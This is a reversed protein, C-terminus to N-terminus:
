ASNQCICGCQSVTVSKTQYCVGMGKLYPIDREWLARFWNAPGSPVRDLGGDSGDFYDSDYCASKWEGWSTRRVSCLGGGAFGADDMNKIGLPEPQYAM